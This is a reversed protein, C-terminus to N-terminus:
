LRDIDGAGSVHENVKEPDGRYRVSGAGSVEIDLEKTVYIKADGAGSMTMHCTEIELDDASMDTAGSIDITAQSTKGSLNMESAGSIDMNLNQATFNMEVESAGSAEIDLDDFHLSNESWLEVAGSMDMQDLTKFTIYVKLKEFKIITKETSIVLIGGEVKTRICEMLNEDAEITLSEKDGQKLVVQFAGGVDIGTFPNVSREETIVKGNGYTGHFDMCGYSYFVIGVILMFPILISRSILNKM